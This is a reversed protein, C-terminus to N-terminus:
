KVFQERFKIYDDLEKTMFKKETTAAMNMSFKHNLKKDVVFLAPFGMVHFEDVIKANEPYDCNVVVFNFDKNYKKAIEGFIPMYRRCYACWDVYFMAVMPREDSIDDSYKSIGTAPIEIPASINEQVEYKPASLKVYAIYGGLALFQLVFLVGLGILIKKMM